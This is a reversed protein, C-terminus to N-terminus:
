RTGDLNARTVHRCQGAANAAVQLRAREAEMGAGQMGSLRIDEESVPQELNGGNLRVVGGM